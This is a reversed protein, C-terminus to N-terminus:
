RSEISSPPCQFLYQFSLEVDGFVHGLQLAEYSIQYSVLGLEAIATM